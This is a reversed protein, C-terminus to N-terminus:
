SRPSIMVRYQVLDDIHTAVDQQNLDPTWNLICHIKVSYFPRVAPSKAMSQLTMMGMGMSTGRTHSLTNTGHLVQVLSYQDAM